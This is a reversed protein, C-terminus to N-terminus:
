TRGLPSWRSHGEVHAVSPGDITTVMEHTHQESNLERNIHPIDDMGITQHFPPEHNKLQGDEIQKALQDLRSGRPPTKWPPRGSDFVEDMEELTKGKTEPATLFIHIFALLNFGAFMMYMKWNITWLLPPVAFALLCNWFWNTATTLSVAKARIRSPFIEAPYTWSIPGWTTAFAAVCLYTSAIIASSVDKHNLVIWTVDNNNSNKVASLNPQGYIAQLAGPIIMFIMIFVSGVLLSPRRGWKDIYIIAPLTLVVNIVYQISATLLPSGISAAEMVYVIYYMMVNIGSLQSWM